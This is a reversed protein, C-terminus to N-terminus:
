KEYLCGQYIGNDAMYKDILTVVRNKELNWMPAVLLDHPADGTVRHFIIDPRVRCIAGAATKIYDEMEMPAYEGRRYMECLPTGETVYLSHLKLGKVSHSNVFRITEYVDEASEGPLGIIVHAIIEIGRADLLKVAETFRSTAYGRNFRRATEDNSTQLGLECWVDHTRTFEGLLDAREEDICDPRTGVALVRIRDDILAASYRERLVEVSAYTNTFNQFYAVYVGAKEASPSALFARAQAEISATGDIHEGAGREGCFSCGGIGCTGDRNPCTFGGDICIKGVRMGDYKSRLYPSLINYKKHAWFM